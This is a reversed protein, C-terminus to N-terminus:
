TFEHRQVKLKMHKCLPLITYDCNKFNTHASVMPDFATSMILSDNTEIIKYNLIKLHAVLIGIVWDALATLEM